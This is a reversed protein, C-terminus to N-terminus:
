HDGAYTPSFANPIVSGHDSDVVERLVKAVFKSRRHIVDCQSLLFRRGLGPGPAKPGTGSLVVKPREGSAQAALIAALLRRGHRRM